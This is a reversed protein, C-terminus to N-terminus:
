VQSEKLFVKIGIWILAGGLIVVGLIFIISNMVILATSESGGCLSVIGAYLNFRFREFPNSFDGSVHRAQAIIDDPAWGSTTVISTVRGAPDILLLKDDHIINVGETHLSSISLENFLDALQAPEGTLMSWDTPVAGFASGYRAMIAPSDYVPDLTIEILQFHKSDLHKQLYGFKSTILPCEDKDPCRTFIFGVVLSKGQFDSLRVIRGRQDVFPYNPMVGGIDLPKVLVESPLGPRFRLAARPYRLTWPNTSRDVIGDITQGPLLDVPTGLRYRRTSAPLMATVPDTRVVVDRASRNLVTGHIPILSILALLGATLLHMETIM